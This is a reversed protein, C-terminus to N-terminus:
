QAYSNKFFRKDVDNLGDVVDKDHGPTGVACDIVIGYKMGITNETDAATTAADQDSDDSLFSHFKGKLSKQENLINSGDIYEM